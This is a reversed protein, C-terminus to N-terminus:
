PTIPNGAIDFYFATVKGPGPPDARLWIVHCPKKGVTENFHGLRQQFEEFSTNQPAVHNYVWRETKEAIAPATQKEPLRPTNIAQSVAHHTSEPLLSIPPVIWIADGHPGPICGTSALVAAFAFTAFSQRNM